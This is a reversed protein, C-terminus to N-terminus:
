SSPAAAALLALLKWNRDIPRGPLRLFNQPLKPRLCDLWVIWCRLLLRSAGLQLSCAGMLIRDSAAQLLM